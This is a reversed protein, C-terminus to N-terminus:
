NWPAARLKDAMAAADREHGAVESRDALTTAQGFDLYLVLSRGQRLVVGRYHGPLGRDGHQRQGAVFIAEEGINLAEWRWVTRVGDAGAPGEACTDLTSRLEAVAASAAATDRYVTVRELKWLRDTNVLAVQRGGVRDADSALPGGCASLLTPLDAGEASKWRVGEEQLPRTSRADGMLFGDPIRPEGPAV